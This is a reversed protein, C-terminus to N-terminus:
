NNVSRTSATIVFRRALQSQFQISQNFHKRVNRERHDVYNPFTAHEKLGSGSVLRVACSPRFCYQHEDSTQKWTWFGLSENNNGRPIERFVFRSPCPTAHLPPNNNGESRPACCGELRCDPLVRFCAMFGLALYVGKTSSNIARLRSRIFLVSAELM